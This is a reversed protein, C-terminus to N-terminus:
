PGEKLTQCLLLIREVAELGDKRTQDMEPAQGEGECLGDTAVRHLEDLACVIPQLANRIEATLLKAAVPNMVHIDYCAQEIVRNV